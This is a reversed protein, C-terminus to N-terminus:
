SSAEFATKLEALYADLADVLFGVDGGAIIFTLGLRRWRQVESVVASTAIGSGLGAHRCAEVVQGVVDRVPESDPQGPVGLAASLDNPGVLLGDLGPVSAIEDLNDVAERTEIQVVVAVNDDSAAVYERNSRGYGAARRPGFGRLGVPPYRTSNVVSRVEDANRVRPVIVGAAGLDLPQILQIPDLGGVRVLVPTDTVSAAMVLTQVTERGLPSHETDIMLFDLASGAMAEVIAPDSSTATGGLQFQRNRLRRGFAM